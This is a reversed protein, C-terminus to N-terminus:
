RRATPATSSTASQSCEALTRRRPDRRTISTGGDDVEVQDKVLESQPIHGIAVFVGGHQPGGDGGTESNRLRVHQLNGEGAVFEEPVFSDQPSTPYRGAARDQMIQSARFEDRRNTLVLDTSVQRRLHLGGDGLRRWRDRRCRTRSSPATASEAPPCGAAPLEMEGPIGLRRPEAGMSLIVPTARYEDDGVWVSHLGGDSLEVRDADDTIFGHRLPSGPRPVPEDDGPGHDGRSVRITRSM